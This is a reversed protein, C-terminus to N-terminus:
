AAAHALPLPSRALAVVRREHGDRGEHTQLHVTPSSAILLPAESHLAAHKCRHRVCRSAGEALLRLVDGASAVPRVCAGDLYVGGSPSERVCPGGGGGGGADDRDDVTSAAGGGGTRTAAATDGGPMLLDVLRELYLEVYTCSVSATWRVGGGKGGGGGGGASPRRGAAAGGGGCSSSGGGGDGQGLAELRAFLAECMRPMVGAEDGSGSGEM